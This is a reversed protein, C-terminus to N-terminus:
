SLISFVRTRNWHSVFYKKGYGLHIYYSLRILLKSCPGVVMDHNIRWNIYKGEHGQVENTLHYLCFVWTRFTIPKFGTIHQTSFIYHKCVWTYTYWWFISHLFNLSRVYFIIILNFYLLLCTSILGIGTKLEFNRTSNSIKM